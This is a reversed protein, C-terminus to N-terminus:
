VKKPSAVFDQAMRSQKMRSDIELGMGLFIIPDYVKGQHVNRILYNTTSLIEKEKRWTPTLSDSYMQYAILANEFDGKLHYLYGLYFDFDEHHDDISECVQKVYPFAELQRDKQSLLVLSLLVNIDDDSGNLQLAKELDEVVKNYDPYNHGLEKKARKIFVDSSQSNAKISM